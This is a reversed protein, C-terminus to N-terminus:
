GGGGNSGRPYQMYIDGAKIGTRTRLPKRDEAPKSTQKNTTMAAHDRVLVNAYVTILM